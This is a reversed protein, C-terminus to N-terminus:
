GVAAEAQAPRGPAFAGARNVYLVVHVDANSRMTERSEFGREALFADITAADVLWKHIEIVLIGVRQLFASEKRLFMEESGEIDVKLVDCPADGFRRKWEDALSLAPAAIERWPNKTVNGEPARDFQSSGPADVNVFFRAKEGESASGVLGWLPEVGRLGNHELHWRTADVMGPHADIALGRLASRDNLSALYLSFYGVNSGLDAFTRVGPFRSLAAYEGEGFLERAVLFQDVGTIRYELTSGPVQRVIPRHRLVWATLERFRLANLVLRLARSRMAISVLSNLM